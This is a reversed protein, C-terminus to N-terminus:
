KKEGYGVGQRESEYVTVENLTVRRRLDDSTLLQDRLALYIHEALRESTTNKEAFPPLDNLHAHDLPELVEALAKKVEAYDILMGISDLETGSLHVVVRYNHGHLNCCPGPYERISHAASFQGEVQMNFM